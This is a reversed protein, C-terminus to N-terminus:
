PPTEQPEDLAALDATKRRITASIAEDITGALSPFRVRVPREQGIRHARKLFQWNDSPVWASEAFVVENGAVLDVSTQCAELQGIIFRTSPSGNFADMALKKARPTTGGSIVVCGYKELRAHLATIVSRHYAGVIIKDAGNEIDAVLMDGVPGVKAMGSLRRFTASQAANELLRSVHAQVAEDDLGCARWRGALDALDEGLELAALEALNTAGPLVVDEFRLPPLDKLVDKQMRRLMHPALFSKLKPWNKSGTIKRGYPTDRSVTFEDLFEEYELPIDAARMERPFLARLHTFMEGTHNKVPTGTLVWVRKASSLAGGANYVYQTRKASPSKLFQAEDLGVADFPIAGLAASYYRLIDYNVIVADASAPIRSNSGELIHVRRPLLGWQRILRAWNDKAIAACVILIKQAGVADAARIFQPSKGLGMDDFILARKRAALFCVGIEQYSYLDAFVDDPLM